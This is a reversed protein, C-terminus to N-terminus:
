VRGGKSVKANEFTKEAVKDPQSGTERDREVGGVWGVSRGVIM